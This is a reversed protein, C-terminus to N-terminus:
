RNHFIFLFIATLLAIGLADITSQGTKRILDWGIESAFVVAFEILALKLASPWNGKLSGKASNAM